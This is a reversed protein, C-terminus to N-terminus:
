IALKDQAISDEVDVLTRASYLPLDQLVACVNENKKFANLVAAVAAEFEETGDPRSQTTSAEEEEGDQPAVPQLGHVVHTSDPLSQTMTAHGKGDQAPVPQVGHELRAQLRLEEVQTQQALREFHSRLSQKALDGKLLVMTWPGSGSHVLSCPVLGEGSRRGVIMLNLKCVRAISALEDCSFFYDKDQVARLYAEQASQRFSGPEKHDGQRAKYYCQLVEVLSECEARDAELVGPSAGWASQLAKVSVELPPNMFLASRLADFVPDVHTLADHKTRPGNEPAPAGSGKVVEGDRRTEYCSEQGEARLFGIHECVKQLCTDSANLCFSRAQKVVGEWAQAVLDRQVALAAMALELEQIRDPCIKHYERWFIAGEPSPSGKLAPVAFEQWLSSRVGEFHVNKDSCKMVEGLAAAALGRCQGQGFDLQGNSNTVGFTAHVGCAGDGVTNASILETGMLPKLSDPVDSAVALLNVEPNFAATPQFATLDKSSPWEANLGGADLEPM